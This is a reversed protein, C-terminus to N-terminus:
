NPNPVHFDQRNESLFAAASFSGDGNVHGGARDLSFKARCDDVNVRLAARVL